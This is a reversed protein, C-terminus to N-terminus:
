HVEGRDRKRWIRRPRFRMGGAWPVFSRPDYAFRSLLPNRKFQIERNLTTPNSESRFTFWGSVYIISVKIRKRRRDTEYSKKRGIKLKSPQNADVSAVRHAVNYSASFLLLIPLLLTFIFTFVLDQIQLITLHRSLFKLM